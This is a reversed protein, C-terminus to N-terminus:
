VIEKGVSRASVAADDSNLKTMLTGFNKDRLPKRAM